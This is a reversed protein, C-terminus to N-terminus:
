ISIKRVIVDFRSKSNQDGQFGPFATDPRPNGACRIAADVLSDISGSFDLANKLGVKLTNLLM